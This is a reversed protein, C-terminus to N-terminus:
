KQRPKKANNIFKNTIKFKGKYLPPEERILVEDNLNEELIAYIEKVMSRHHRKAREKIKKQMDIPVNRILIDPM